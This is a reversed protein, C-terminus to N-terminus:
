RRPRGCCATPTSAARMPLYTNDYVNQSSGEGGYARRYDVNPTAGLGEMIDAEANPAYPDPAALLRALDRRRPLEARMEFYGYKQTFSGLTNLMGSTYEAGWTAYNADGVTPKATITVVGNSLSFPNVSTQEGRGQFGPAVYAQREGNSVLTYAWQDKLNHGFNTAV